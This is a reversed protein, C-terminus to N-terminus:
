QQCVSHICHSIWKMTCVKNEQIHHVTCQGVCQGRTYLPGSMEHCQCHGRTQPPLHVANRLYIRCLIYHAMCQRCQASVSRTYITPRVSYSTSLAWTHIIPRVICLTSVEWIIRQPGYEANHLCQERTYAPGSVTGTYIIRRVGYSASVTRSM